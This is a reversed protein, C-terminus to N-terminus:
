RQPNRELDAQRRKNHRVQPRSFANLLGQRYLTNNRLYYRVARRRLQKAMTEDEPLKGNCKFAVIEDMWSAQDREIQCIQQLTQHISPHHLIEVRTDKHCQHPQTTALRALSDARANNARPIQNIHYFEFRKLLTTAYALYAALQEDKATFSGTIQNVVLQSDSFVNISTAGTSLALQLGAILAEYETVPNIVNDPEVEATDRPIMEAIFDAVAQGKVAPRPRYEIDFETLEIAWKSLRGSHEPNQLVQKLPQNTLVHISHAQFYHRLRRAAVILALALQELTPYRTEPGNMARGAYFVPLEKTGDRRVLASSVATTSVALYLYLPEGPQPTSLLPVAALYDKLGQFAEQCDPTWEILKSKSRRLLRFFPECKDTLRSIFRSLAVLRGQLAEVDKKLIPQAM